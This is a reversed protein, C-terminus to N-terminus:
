EWVGGGVLRGRVGRFGASEVVLEELVVVEVVVDVM